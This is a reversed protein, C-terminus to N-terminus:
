IITLKMRKFLFKGITTQTTLFRIIDGLAGKWMTLRVRPLWTPTWAEMFPLNTMFDINEVQGKNFMSCIAAHNVYMGLYLRRYRNDYSTKAIFANKKYQLILSYAVPQNNLELIWTNWKFDKETQSALQAGSWLNLLDQDKTMQERTRWTEKWSRKEIDLIKELVDPRNNENEFCTIKWQGGQSLNREMRKFRRRFSGGKKAQFDEWSCSVPIIRHGM